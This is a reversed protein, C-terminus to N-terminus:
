VSDDAKNFAAPEAKLGGRGDFGGSGAGGDGDLVGDFKELAM